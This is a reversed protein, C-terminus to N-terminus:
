VEKPADEDENIVDNWIKKAVEWRTMDPYMISAGSFFWLLVEYVAIIRKVM